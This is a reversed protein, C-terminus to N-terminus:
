NKQVYLPVESTCTSLTFIHHTCTKGQEAAIEFKNDKPARLWRSLAMKFHNWFWPQLFNRSQVKEGWIEELPLGFYAKEDLYLSYVWRFIPSINKDAGLIYHIYLLHKLSALGESSFFHNKPNKALKLYKWQMCQCYVLPNWILLLIDLFLSIPM